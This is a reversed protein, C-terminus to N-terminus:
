LRGAISPLSEFSELFREACSPMLSPTFPCGFRVFELVCSMHSDLVKPVGERIKAGWVWFYRPTRRTSQTRQPGVAIDPTFRLFGKVDMCM